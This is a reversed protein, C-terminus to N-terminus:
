EDFIGDLSEMEGKGKFLRWLRGSKRRAYEMKKCAIAMGEDTADFRIANNIYLDRAVEIADETAGIYAFTWGKERLRTVMSKIMRGTYEHSANEYGDTIVTVLVRDEPTVMPELTRLTVGMADYLPTCGGTCYDKETFDAVEAIPVCVRRAKVGKMGDGEFTVISVNNEQEPNEEQERRIGGLVENISSLTSKYISSMSGSEDLIIVNYIKM